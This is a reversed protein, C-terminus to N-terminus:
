VTPKGTEVWLGRLLEKKPTGQLIRFIFWLFSSSLHRHTSGLLQKQSSSAPPAPLSAPAWDTFRVTGAVKLGFGSVGLAQTVYRPLQWSVFVWLATLSGPKLLGFEGREGILFDMPPIHSRYYNPFDFGSAEFGFISKFRKCM